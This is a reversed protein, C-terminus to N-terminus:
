IGGKFFFKEIISGVIIFVFSTGFGLIFSPWSIKM